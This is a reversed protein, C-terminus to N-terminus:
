KSIEPYMTTLILFFSSFCIDHKGTSAKLPAVWDRGAPQPPRWGPPIGRCVGEKFQSLTRCGIPVIEGYRGIELVLRKLAIWLIIFLEVLRSYRFQRCKKNLHPQINARFCSSLKTLLKTSRELKNILCDISTKCFLASLTSHKVRLVMRSKGLVASKNNYCNTTNVAERVTAVPNWRFFNYHADWHRVTQGM